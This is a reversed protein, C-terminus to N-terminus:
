FRFVLGASTVMYRLHAEGAAELLPRETGHVTSFYRLEFRVGVSQSLFGVNGATPQLPAFTAHMRVAPDTNLVGMCNPGVLRMGSARALDRMRKQAARGEESVEAFGATGFFGILGLLTRGCSSSLAPM